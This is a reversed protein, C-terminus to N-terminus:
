GTKGLLQLQPRRRNEAHRHRQDAPPLVAVDREGSVRHLQHSKHPEPRQRRHGTPVEATPRGADPHRSLRRGALRQDHHRAAASDAAPRVHVHLRLLRVSRGAGNGAGYKSRHGAAQRQLDSRRQSGVGSRITYPAATSMSFNLNANFNRLAQTGFFANLRNRIDNGRQDGIRTSAAQDGARQVRRRQQEAHTGLQLQDRLEHAELELAAQESESVAPFGHGSSVHQGHEPALQRRRGGRRHQRLAPQPSVGDLPANLNLGRLLGSGNIHAYTVGARVKPTFAHDVGVSVRSNKAMQLDDALLYRNIPPITGVAGPDPFTPNIINLEQQRFGDVRLTQEYTGSNLWDYFVGASARLTTKGNKFPAWTVGFRPGFANYDDLHTQAEYRLGPSLTLGKRVRIDDQIYWGAQLNWYDINPDGIRRTYSRPTGAEYAALSEFTYTGLYNSTDNSRYSGGSLVIGTRVSHMGRVYDLDSALNFTRTRRGGAVQAGGSTFADNVRITPTELASRSSSDNMSFSLRTNTFFRRGLPGAEQIRLTRGHEENTHAHEPLDFAGIGLNRQVSDEQNYGIRLTQDKTLAYDFNGFM